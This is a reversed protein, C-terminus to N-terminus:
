DSTSDNNIVSLRERMVIQNLERYRDSKQFEHAYMIMEGIQDYKEKDFLEPCQKKLEVLKVMDGQRLANRKEYYLAIADNVLMEDLSQM